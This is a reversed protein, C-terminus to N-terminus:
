RPVAKLHGDAMVYLHDFAPFLAPDRTSVVVTRGPTALLGALVNRQLEPELTDLSEDILLVAPESLLARALTLRMCQSPSLPSGKSTLRTELGEPLRDVEALVGAVALAARLKETALDPRSLRLNEAVTGHV